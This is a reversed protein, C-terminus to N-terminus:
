DFMSPERRRKIKRPGLAQYRTWAESFLNWFRTLENDDLMKLKAWNYLQFRRESASAPLSVSILDLDCYVFHPYHKLLVKKLVAAVAGLQRPTLPTQWFHLIMLRKPDLYRLLIPKVELALDNPLFFSMPPFPRIPAPSGARLFKESAQLIEIACKRETPGALSKAQDMGQKFGLDGQLVSCFLARAPEYRPPSKREAHILNQVIAARDDVVMSITSLLSPPERLPTSLDYLRDM